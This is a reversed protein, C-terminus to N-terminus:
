GHHLCDNFKLLLGQLEFVDSCSPPLITISIKNVCLFFHTFIGLTNIEKKYDM